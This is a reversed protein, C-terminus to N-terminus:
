SCLPIDKRIMQGGSLGCALLILSSMFYEFVLKPHSLSSTM